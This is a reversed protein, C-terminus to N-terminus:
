KALRMLSGVTNADAAAWYISTADVAIGLAYVTLNSVLTTPTGGSLPAKVVAGGYFVTWYVDTDDVAVGMPDNQMSALTVSGGGGLPTQVVRANGDGWYVSNANVAIGTAGSSMTRDSALTSPTGGGLPMTNVTDNWYSTFYLTTADVAVAFPTYVADSLVTSTAGGGLPASLIHSTQDTWYVNRADVAIGNASPPGSALTVPPGGSLPMKMVSAGVTWYLSTADVAIFKVYPLGSLLTTPQCVGAQCAGGLCDHGCAGCDHGDSQEDVCSGNCPTQGSFCTIGADVGGTDSGTDVSADIAVGSSSGSGSSSAIADVPEGEPSAGDSTADGHL